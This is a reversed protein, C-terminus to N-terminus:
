AFRAKVNTSAGSVTQVFDYSGTVGDGGLYVIGSGPNVTLKGAQMQVINGNSDSLTVIGNQFWLYQTPTAGNLCNPHYVLDALNYRRFSGPNGVAWNARAVSSHDRDSAVAHGVDGAVPDIIIGSTGGQVRPAPLGFLIGHPGSNGAADIQNIVPQVDVTPAVSLGGGHVTIIKVPVGTRVFAIQQRVVFRNSNFDDLAEATSVQGYYTTDAM